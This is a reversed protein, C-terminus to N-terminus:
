VGIYCSPTRTTTWGDHTNYSTIYEGGYQWGASTLQAYQMYFYYYGSQAFELDSVEFASWMTAQHWSGTSWQGTVYDYVWARAYSNSVANTNTVQVGFTAGCDVASKFQVGAITVEASAPQVPALALATVTALAGLGTRLLSRNMIVERQIETTV